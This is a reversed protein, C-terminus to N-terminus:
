TVLAAQGYWPALYYNKWCNGDLSLNAQAGTFMCARGATNGPPGDHHLLLHLQV